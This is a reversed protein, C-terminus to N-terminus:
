FGKPFFLKWRESFEKEQIKYTLYFNYKIGMKEVLQLQSEDYGARDLYFGIAQHYPYTYDIKKLISLLRNISVKEKAAKYAELVEFVGGAYNPRVTIDILTREIDTVRIKVDNFPLEKIGINEVNKGNLLYISIDKYKAIQNSQRVNCGFAKDINSQHLKKSNNNRMKKLELNTYVVKPINDTLGHLFVASYHSLYSHKKLSLGIEYITADPSIFRFVEKNLPLIIKEKKLINEKDLFEAFKQCSIKKTLGWLYAEKLLKRVGGILFVNQKKKKVSSRLQSKRSAIEKELDLKLMFVSM